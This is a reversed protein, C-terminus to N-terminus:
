WLCEVRERKHRGEPTRTRLTLRGGDIVSQLATKSTSIWAMRLADKKGQRKGYGYQCQLIRGM